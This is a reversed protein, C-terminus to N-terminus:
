DSQDNSPGSSEIVGTFRSPEVPGEVRNAVHATSLRLGWSGAVPTRETGFRSQKDEDRKERFRAKVAGVAIIM